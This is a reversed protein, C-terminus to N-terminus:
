VNIKKKNQSIIIHFSYLKTDSQKDEDSVNKTTQETTM